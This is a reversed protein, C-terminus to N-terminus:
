KALATLESLDPREAALRAWVDRAEQAAGAEQLMLAFLLRDSFEARDGPRRKEVQQLAELGLTRFRGTGLENGAVAYSWAYETDPKLKVPLRYSGGGAKALHVPKDQGVEHIALEGSAAGDRARWRFTPELTAVRGETPFVLGSAERPKAASRMRVSAASSQAVQVLVKNSTRWETGRAAVAGEGKGTIERDAVQFEGPGNLAYERGSTIYMVSASADKALALRQGVALEALLLPRPVGDLAVDGKLNTIFAVTNAAFAPLALALFATAVVRQIIKM